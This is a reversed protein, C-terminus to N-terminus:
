AFVKSLIYVYQLASVICTVIAMTKIDLIRIPDEFEALVKALIYHNYSIVGKRSLHNKIHGEFSQSTQFRKFTCVPIYGPYLHYFHLIFLLYIHYFIYQLYVRSYPRPACSPTFLGNRCTGILLKFCTCTQDFPWFM